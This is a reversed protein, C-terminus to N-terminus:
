VLAEKRLALRVAGRTRQRRQGPNAHPGAANSRRRELVRAIRDPNAQPTIMSKSM